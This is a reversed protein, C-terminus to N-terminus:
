KSEEQENTQDVVIVRELRAFDILPTIDIELSTDYDLTRIASISGICINKIYNENEGSTVILDGYHLDEIVHKRIYKLRLPLEQNGNGVCIGIDSTSKIRSSVNCEIDYIPLIMSSFRGVTIIKGILGVNGNQLAIVPMNKKIGSASGKNITFGTYTGSIDRGIIQAPINNYEYNETFNLLGRLKENEQRLQVDNRLMFEYQKLEETLKDYDNQLDRLDRVATVAGGLTSSILHVGKQLSTIVTFGTTRFNIIFGGTSFSLLTGSGIILIIFVILQSKLSYKSSQQVM